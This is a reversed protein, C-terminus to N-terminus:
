EGAYEEIEKFDQKVGAIMMAGITNIAITVAIGKANNM